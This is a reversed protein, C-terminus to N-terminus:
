KEWRHLKKEIIKNNITKSNLFNKVQVYNVM